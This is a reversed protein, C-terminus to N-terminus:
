YSAVIRGNFETVYVTGTHTDITMSSVTALETPLWRNPRPAPLRGTLQTRHIPGDDRFPIGNSKM